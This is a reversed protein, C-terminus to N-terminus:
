FKQHTYAWGNLKFLKDPDIVYNPLVGGMDAVWGSVTYPKLDAGYGIAWDYPQGDVYAVCFRLGFGDLIDDYAEEFEDLLGDLNDNNITCMKIMINYIKDAVEVNYEHTYFEAWNIM